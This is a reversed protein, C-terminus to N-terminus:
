SKHRYFDRLAAIIQDGYAAVKREGFGFVELLEATSRPRLRCIDDVSRDHM